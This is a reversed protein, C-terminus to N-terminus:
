FLSLDFSLYGDNVAITDGPSSQRELLLEHMEIITKFERRWVDMTGGVGRYTGDHNQSGELEVLVGDLSADIVGHWGEAQRLMFPRTVGTGDALSLRWTVIGHPMGTCVILSDQRFEIQKFHYIDDGVLLDNWLEVNGDHGCGVLLLAIITFLLERM